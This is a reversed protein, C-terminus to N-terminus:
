GGKAAAARLAKGTFMFSDAAMPKHCALCRAQNLGDNRIGKADFVAFDWNGNRLLAPVSDGWGAKAEMAAYSRLTDPQLKGAADPKATYNAVVIVAGDAVPQVARAAKIAVANAYRRAISGAAADEVTEYLKFGGPFNAPFTMRSAINRSEAPTAAHPDIPTFSRSSWYAAYAKIDAESLQGAIAAMLDNKRTGAKFATLQKVIYPAKQAALNPIDGSGSIGNPGHCAQCAAIGAPAAVEQASASGAGSLLAALLLKRMVHHKM